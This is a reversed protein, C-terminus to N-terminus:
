FAPDRDLARPGTNTVEIKFTQIQGAVVTALTRTKIVAIDASNPASSGTLGFTITNNPLNVDQVNYNPSGVTLSSTATGPATM